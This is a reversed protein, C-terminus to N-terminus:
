GLQDPGLVALTSIEPDFPYSEWASGKRQKSVVEPVKSPLCRMVLYPLSLTRPKM